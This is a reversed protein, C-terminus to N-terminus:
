ILERLLADLRAGLVERSHERAVWSRGAAGVARRESVSLSRVARIADALAVGSSDRAQVGAGADHVLRAVEGPVNCVVPLGAALYDFLKNPSVGFSFLSADRLVMLGADVAAFLSVLEAKPVPDRFEVNQLGRRRADAVLAVKAPGDGVLLFQIGADSRLIEAADLVGSRAWQRVWAGGRLNGRVAQGITGRRM